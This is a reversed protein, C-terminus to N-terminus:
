QFRRAGSYLDHGSNTGNKRYLLGWRKWSMVKTLMHKLYSLHPFAPANTAAASNVASAHRTQSTTVASLLFLLWIASTETFWPGNSTRSAPVSTESGPEPPLCEFALSFFFHSVCCGQYASLLRLSFPGSPHGSSPHLLCTPLSPRSVAPVVSGGKFLVFFSVGPHFHGHRMAFYNRRVHLDCM